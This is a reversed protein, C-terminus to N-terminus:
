PRHDQEILKCAREYLIADQQNAVELRKRLGPPLSSLLKEVREATSLTHTETVNKRTDPPLELSIGYDALISAFRAVDAEFNETRGLLEVGSLTRLATALDYTMGQASRKNIPRSRYPSSFFRTQANSVHSIEARDNLCHEIWGAFDRERAIQGTSTNDLQDAMEAPEGIKILEAIRQKRDLLAIPTGDKTEPGRKFRYISAIRLFPNRLFIASLTRYDLSSPPPLMIQHSSFALANPRRMIIRDLQEQDIVFFPYPGDFLEHKDGFNHGLVHDFSTGANKYIHYHLIVTRM